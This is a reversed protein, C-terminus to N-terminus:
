PLIPTLTDFSAAARRKPISETSREVCLSYFKENDKESPAGSRSATALHKGSGAIQSQSVYIEDQSCSRPGRLFGLRGRIIELVGDRSTAEM